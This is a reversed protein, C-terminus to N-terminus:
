NEKQNPFTKVYQVLFDIEEDHFTKGWPPCLNSKGISQPGDHISKFLAEDSTGAMFTSDTFNAPKPEVAYGFYRGMGDGTIGHCVSCYHQYLRQGEKYTYSQSERIDKEVPPLAELVEAETEQLISDSSSVALSDNQANHTSQKGCGSILLSFTGLVIVIKKLM